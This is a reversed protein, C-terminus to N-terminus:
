IKYKFALTVRACLNVFHNCVSSCVMCMFGCEILLLRMKLYVSALQLCKIGLQMFLSYNLHSYQQLFIARSTNHCFAAVSFLFVNAVFQYILIEHQFTFVTDKDLLSM